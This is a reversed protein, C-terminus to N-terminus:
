QVEFARNGDVTEIAIIMFCTDYFNLLSTIESAFYVCLDKTFRSWHFKYNLPVRVIPNKFILIHVTKLRPNDSIIRLLLRYIQDPLDTNRKFLLCLQFENVEIVEYSNCIM